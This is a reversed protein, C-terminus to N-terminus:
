RWFTPKFHSRTSSAPSRHFRARPRRLERWRSLRMRFSALPPRSTTRRMQRARARRQRANPPTACTPPSRNSRRQQKKLPRAQQETRKALQDTSSGLTRASGEIERSKDLISQMVRQFAALSANFDHRLPEFEAKFPTPLTAEINFHALRKLGDGLESVVNQLDAALQAQEALHAARERDTLHRQRAAEEALELKEIAASRLVEIASSMTGIEDQRKSFPVGQGYNGAALRGLYASLALVPTISRRKFVLLGVWLVVLAFAAAASAATTYLLADRHAMSEQAELYATSTKVLQDVARKQAEFADRLRDFATQLAAEDRKKLAPLAQENMAAWFRASTDKIDEKVLKQIDQPMDAAAWLAYRTDFDKQLAAIRGLNRETMEPHIVAETAHLYAEVVFMPPPLIDAILDKAAVIERYTPGEIRVKYLTYGMTTIVALFAATLVAAFVLLSRSITTTM